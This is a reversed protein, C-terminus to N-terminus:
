YDNGLFGSVGTRGSADESFKIGVDFDFYECLENMIERQVNERIIHSDALTISDTHKFARNVGFMTGSNVCMEVIRYVNPKM